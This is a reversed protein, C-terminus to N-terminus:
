TDKLLSVVLELGAASMLLRQATECASDTSNLGTTISKAKLTLQTHLCVVSALWICHTSIHTLSLVPSHIPETVLPKMGAQGTFEMGAKKYVRAFVSVNGDVNAFYKLFSM